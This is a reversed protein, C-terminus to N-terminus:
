RGIARWCMGKRIENLTWQNAMLNLLWERRNDSYRPKEIQKLSKTAMPTAGCPHTCYVPIGQIVADVAINSFASVVLWARQLDADLPVRSKRQRIKIPRDTNKEIQARVKKMWISVSIGHLCAIAYDPPCLLIYAGEKRWSHISINLKDLREKNEKTEWISSDDMKTKQFANHTVRYYKGRGIYAHDGFYWDLGAERTTKLDGWYRPSGFGAWRGFQYETTMVGGCGKAFASAFRPSTKQVRDYYVRMRKQEHEEVSLM